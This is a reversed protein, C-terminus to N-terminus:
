ISFCEPIKKPFCKEIKTSKKLKKMDPFGTKSNADMFVKKYRPYKFAASYAIGKKVFGVCNQGFIKFNFFYM